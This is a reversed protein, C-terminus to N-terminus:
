SHSIECETESSKQTTFSTWQVCKRVNEPFNSVGEPMFQLHLFPTGKRAMVSQGRVINNYHDQFM